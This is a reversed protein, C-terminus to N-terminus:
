DPLMDAMQSLMKDVDADQPPPPANLREVTEKNARLLNLGIEASGNAMKTLAAANQLAALAKPDALDNPDVRDVQLDAIRALKAATRAGYSAATALSGSIDSLAAALNNVIGQLPQPMQAIERSIAEAGAEALVKREAVDRLTSLKKRLTASKVGFHEAIVDYTTGRGLMAAAEAWQEPTLVSKRSM